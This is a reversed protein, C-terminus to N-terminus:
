IMWRWIRIFVLIISIVILITATVSLARLEKKRISLVWLLLSLILFPVIYLKYNLWSLEIIGFLAQTKGDVSLFRQALNYNLIILYLTSGISIILSILSFKYNKM